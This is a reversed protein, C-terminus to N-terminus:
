ILVRAKIEYFRKSMTYIALLNYPINLVTYNEYKLNWGLLSEGGGGSRLPNKKSPPTDINSGSGKDNLNSSTQSYVSSGFFFLISYFSMELCYIYLM